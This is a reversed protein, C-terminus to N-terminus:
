RPRRRGVIPFTVILAGLGVLGFGATELRAWEPYMFGPVGAMVIAFNGELWEYQRVGEPVRDRAQQDDLLEGEPTQWWQSFETGGPYDNTQSGQTAPDVVKVHRMAEGQLWLGRAMEGGLYLVLCLATGIIVAPLLRGVVAGALVALGFAALGKAAVVPGHMGVDGFRIAPSWPERGAWLVESAVVLAVGLLLTIVAVPLIRGLLWRSRSAALYWVTPATGGEIERAILPVGFFLGLALPLIAMAAMIKSAEAEDITLFRVVPDECAEASGPGASGFWALWCEPSVAAADLRGRVILASIVVVAVTVTLAVIEFRQLRFAVRAQAIM